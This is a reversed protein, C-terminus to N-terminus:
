KMRMVEEFAIVNLPRYGQFNPYIQFTTNGKTYKYNIHTYIAMSRM